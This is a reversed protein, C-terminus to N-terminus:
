RPISVPGGTQLSEREAELMRTVGIADDLTSRAAERDQSICEVFYRVEAEYGTEAPLDVSASRGEVHLVLPAARALDFEATAREFRVVYTMRFGFGPAHRWGAEAVVHAPGLPFRYLATLHDLDGAACVADPDGFCGRVVDADHLHLDFLAGGTQESQEYFEPAWNPASGLRRFVASLVRGYTRSEITEKLWTWGPWFRMCMAPMVIHGAGRAARALREVEARCLAVPKEVLVHKGAAIAALALEVHTPTHTCISVAHVDADRLMEGAEAYARVRSADFLGAVSAGTSLNGASKARGERRVPDRDCVAVLRCALGAAAARAYAQVHTRGMFGLGIVGIGLTRPASM